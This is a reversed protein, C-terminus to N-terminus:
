SVKKEWLEYKGQWHEPAQGEKYDWGTKRHFEKSKLSEINVGCQLVVKGMKKRLNEVIEYVKNDVREGIKNGRFKPKVFFGNALFTSYNVKENNLNRNEIFDLIRGGIVEGTNQDIALIFRVKNHVSDKLKEVSSIGRMEREKDDFEPHDAYLDVVGQLTKDDVPNDKDFVKIEVNEKEM